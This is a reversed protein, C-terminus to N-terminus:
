MLPGDPLPFEGDEGAKAQYGSPDTLCYLAQSLALTSQELRPEGNGGRVDKALGSLKESGCAKFYLHFGGGLSTPM